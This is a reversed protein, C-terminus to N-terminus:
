YGVRFAEEVAKYAEKVKDRMEQVLAAHRVDNLEPAGKARWELTDILNGMHKCTDIIEIKNQRTQKQLMPLNIEEELSMPKIGYGEYIGNYISEIVNM